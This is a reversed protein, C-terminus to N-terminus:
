LLLKKVRCPGVNVKSITPALCWGDSSDKPVSNAKANSILSLYKTLMFSPNDSLCCVPDNFDRVLYEVLRALSSFLSHMKKHNPPSLEHLCWPSPSNMFVGVINRYLLRSGSLFSPIAPLLFFLSGPFSCSGLIRQTLPTTLRQVIPKVM